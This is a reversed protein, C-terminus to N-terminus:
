VIAAVVVDNRLTHRRWVYIENRGSESSVYALWRGDPSFTPAGEGFPTEVLASPKDKRDPRLVWIDQLTRPSVLVFALAGDPTWSFPFTSRDSALLREEPASGDLPKWYMNERGAKDSVYALRQGDRTWLPFGGNGESTFRSWTERALDYLWVDDNDEGSITVAVRRGDPALRPQFYVGGFMGTPQEVGERNVWLLVSQRPRARAPVYAM